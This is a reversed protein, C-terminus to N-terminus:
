WQSQHLAAGRNFTTFAHLRRRRDRHASGSENSHCKPENASSVSIRCTKFVLIQRDRPIHANRNDSRCNGRHRREARQISPSGSQFLLGQCHATVISVAGALARSAAEALKPFAHSPDGDAADLWQTNACILVTSGSRFYSKAPLLRELTISRDARPRETTTV